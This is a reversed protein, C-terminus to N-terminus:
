PYTQTSLASQRKKAPAHSSGSTRQFCYHLSGLYLATVLALCASQDDDIAARICEHDVSKSAHRAERVRAVWERGSQKTVQFVRYVSKRPHGRGYLNKHNVLAYLWLRYLVGSSPQVM